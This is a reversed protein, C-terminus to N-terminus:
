RNLDSECMGAPLDICTCKDGCEAGQDENCPQNQCEDEDECYNYAVCFCSSTCGQIESCANGCATVSSANVRVGWSNIAVALVSALLLAPLVSQRVARFVM